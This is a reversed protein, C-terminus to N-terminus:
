CEREEKCVDKMCPAVILALPIVVREGPARGFESSLWLGRPARETCHINPQNIIDAERMEDVVPTISGCECAYACKTCLLFMVVLDVFMNFLPQQTKLQLFKRSIM